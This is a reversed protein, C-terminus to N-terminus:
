AIREMVAGYVGDTGHRAPTLRMDPGGLREDDLLKAVDLRRFDKGAGSELFKDVQQENEQGLVSCTAYILRGGVKVLGAARTLLKTQRSLDRALAEGDLQWRAFPRRRWSGTGSCPADVLVRDAKAGMEDWWATEGKLVRMEVLEEVQARRLRPKMRGLRRASRDCAVLQGKGDMGAALALTKGGGGACLDVVVQGPEAQVALALMQSGEDQPELWGERYARAQTLPVRGALRLGIPSYPTQTAAIKDEALMAVAEERTGRGVNVRLDVLAPENLAGCESAVQDGFAEVFRPWLWDPVNVQAPLPLDSGGNALAAVLQNEQDDLLAPGYGQGDFVASPDEGCLVLDAVLWARPREGLSGLQGVRWKIEGLRRLLEYLRGQVAARDKSGAYRRHRFYDQIIVDAPRKGVAIEELLELVAAIRAGPTM